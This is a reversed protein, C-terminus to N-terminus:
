SGGGNTISSLIVSGAIMLFVAPLIFVMMPIIMKQSAQAGLKEARNLRVVRMSSSQGRLAAGVSAGMQDASVIVAVFSSIEPMDIRKSMEKMATARTSGLQIDKLVHSLEELFASMPAKNIVKSIAGMFDLGAEMSLTLLDAVFPLAIRIDDQRTKILGKIHMDPMVFAFVTAGICLLPPPPSPSFLFFLLLFFGVLVTFWFKAGLFVEVDVHKRLGAQILKSKYKPVWSKPFFGLAIDLYSGKLLPKTYKIYSPAKMEEDESGWDSGLRNEAASNEAARMSTFVLYFLASGILAMGVILINIYVFKEKM